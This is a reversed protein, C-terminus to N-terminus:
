PLRRRGQTGTAARYESLERPAGLVQREIDKLQRDAERGSCKRAAAVPAILMGLWAYGVALSLGFFLVGVLGALTMLLM